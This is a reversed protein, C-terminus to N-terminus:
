FEWTASAQISRSDGLYMFSGSRYAATWYEQDTVNRAILRFNLTETPYYHLFLDVV